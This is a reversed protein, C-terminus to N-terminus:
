EETMNIAFTDDDHKRIPQLTLPDVEEDEESRTLDIHFEEDSAKSLVERDELSMEYEEIIDQNDKLNLYLLVIGLITVAYGAYMVVSAYSMSTIGTTGAMGVVSLVVGIVAVLIAIHSNSFKMVM